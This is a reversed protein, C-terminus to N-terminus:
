PTGQLATRIMMAANKAWLGSDDIIFDPASSAEDEQQHQGRAKSQLPASLKDAAAMQFLSRASLNARATQTSSYTQTGAPSLLSPSRLSPVALHDMRLSTISICSSEDCHVSAYNDDDADSISSEDDVDTYPLARQFASTTVPGMDSNLVGACVISEDDNQGVLKTHATAASSAADNRKTEKASIPRAHKFEQPSVANSTPLPLATELASKSHYRLLGSPSTKDRKLQERRMFALVEHVPTSTNFHLPVRIGARDQM